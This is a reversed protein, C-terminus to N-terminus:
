RWQHKKRGKVFDNIDFSFMLYAGAFNEKSEVKKGNVWLDARYSIGNFRLSIEKKLDDAGLNFSTRFWWPNKFQEPDVNQMNIGFYPDEIYGTAAM